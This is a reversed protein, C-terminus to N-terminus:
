QVLETYNEHAEIQTVYVVPGSDNEYKFQKSHEFLMVLKDYDINLYHPHTLYTLVQPQQLIGYNNFQKLNLNFRDLLEQAQRNTSDAGNNPYEWINMLPPNSNNISNRSVQYPRTVPSLGLWDRPQQNIGYTKSVDNGSSEYIFGLDNLVRMNDLDLFWGGARYGKPVPLGNNRFQGLAWNIIMRFEVYDYATTLVDHCETRGGWAPEMKPEVGAAAIMDCHMHLHLGIEDGLSQRDKVWQTLFQVRAPAIGQYVYIRPNFLQTIPMKYDSSLQVLQDLYKQEVDYGEWDMTWTMYLPASYIFSTFNSYIFGNLKNSELAFNKELEFLDADIREGLDISLRIYYRDYNLQALPIKLLYDKDPEWNISNQLVAAASPDSAKFLEYTLKDSEFIGEPVMFNINLTDNDVHWLRESQLLIPIEQIQSFNSETRTNVTEPFSGFDPQEDLLDGFYLEVQFEEEINNGLEIALRTNLTNQNKIAFKLKEYELRDENWLVLELDNGDQRSQKLDVLNKHNFELEAWTNRRAESINIVYKFPLKASYWQKVIDPDEEIIVEEGQENDNFKIDPRIIAIVALVIILIATTSITVIYSFREHSINEPLLNSIYTTVIRWIYILGVSVVISTIFLIILLFINEVKINLYISSFTLLITHVILVPFSNQGMFKLFPIRAYFFGILERTLKLKQVFLVLINIWALGISLLGLSPPWRRILQEPGNLIYSFFVLGLVSIMLLSERRLEIKDEKRDRIILGWHMGILLIPLYQFLPFRYIEIGGYFLNGWSNFPYSLGVVEHALLEGLMYFGACVIVVALPKQVITKLTKPFFLLLLGYVFFPILFETYGPVEILLIIKLVDKLEFLDSELFQPISVTVALFIYGVFLSLFRKILSAKDLNRKKFDQLYVIYSVSGSIFLFTTFSVINGWQRLWDVFSNQGNYFYSIIHTLLM